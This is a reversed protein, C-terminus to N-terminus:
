PSEFLPAFLSKALMNTKGLLFQGIEDPCRLRVGSVMVGQVVHTGQNCGDLSVQPTM